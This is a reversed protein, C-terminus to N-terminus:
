PGQGTRLPHLGTLLGARTPSSVPCTMFNSFRVGVSFIRDINPTPTKGGTYSLDGHGLDDALIILINPKDPKQASATTCVSVLAGFFLIKSHNFPAM